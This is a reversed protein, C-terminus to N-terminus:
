RMFGDSCAAAVFHNENGGGSTLLSSATFATLAMFRTEPSPDYDAKKWPKRQKLGKYSLMHSGLLAYSCCQGRKTEGQVAATDEEDVSHNAYQKARNQSSVYKDSVYGTEKDKQSSVFNDRTHCTEKDKQIVNETPLTRDSKREISDVELNESDSTREPDCKESSRSKVNSTDRSTTSDSSIRKSHITSPRKSDKTLSVRWSKM